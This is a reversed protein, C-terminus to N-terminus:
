AIEKEQLELAFLFRNDSRCGTKARIAAFDGKYATGMVGTVPVKETGETKNYYFDQM